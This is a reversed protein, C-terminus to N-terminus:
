SSCCTAKQAVPRGHMRVTAAKNASMAPQSSIRNKIETVMTTFAQEVNTANKASTELFPIGIEDAFAARKKILDSKNGVLLRNVNSTTFKDIEELWVKVNNFSEEDTIDYVIVIGHAGRYYSNTITRFREQGATDWIQLKIIKGEQEVTRIKFDVGITSIYSEVYSDDAFRLLLCSKGVGSDGILLLKFLYDYEPTMAQSPWSIFSNGSIVIVFVVYLATGQRM